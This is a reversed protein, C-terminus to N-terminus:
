DNKGYVMDRLIKNRLFEPMNIGAFAEAAQEEGRDQPEYNSLFRNIGESGPYNVYGYNRPNRGTLNPLFQHKYEHRLIAEIPIGLQEAVSNAQMVIMNALNGTDQTGGGFSDYLNQTPAFGSIRQTTMPNTPYPYSRENFVPNFYEPSLMKYSGFSSQPLNSKQLLGQLIPNNVLADWKLTTPTLLAQQFYGSVDPKKYVLNLLEQIDM